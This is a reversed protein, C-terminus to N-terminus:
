KKSKLKFNSMAYLARKTEPLLEIDKEIMFTEVDAVTIRTLGNIRAWDLCQGVLSPLEAKENQIKQKREEGCQKRFENEAMFTVKQMKLVIEQPMSYQHIERASWFQNIYRSAFYDIREPFEIKIYDLIEIAIEEVTKNKIWDPVKPKEEDDLIETEALPSSLIEDYQHGFKELFSVLICKEDKWMVCENGKCEDRTLPCFTNIM